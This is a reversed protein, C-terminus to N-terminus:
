KQRRRVLDVMQILAPEVTQVLARSELRLRGLRRGPTQEPEGQLFHEQCGRREPELMLLLKPESAEPHRQGLRGLLRLGLKALTPRALGHHLELKVRIHRVVVKRLRAVKVLPRLLWQRNPLAQKVLRLGPVVLDQVVRHLIVGM